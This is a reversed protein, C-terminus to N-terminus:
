HRKQAVPVAVIMCRTVSHAECDALAKSQQESARTAGFLAGTILGLSVITALMLVAEKPTLVIRHPRTM